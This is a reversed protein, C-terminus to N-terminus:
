YAIVEDRRFIVLESDSEFAAIVEHFYQDFLAILQTNGINGFEILLVKPPAGRLLFYESFDSDKTVVTRDQETAILIIEDDGLLHGDEFDTTHVCDYGQETLYTALRPPLQTDVDVIFKM